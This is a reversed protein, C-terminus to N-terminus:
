RVSLGEYLDGDLVLSHETFFTGLVLFFFFLTFLLTPRVKGTSAVCM